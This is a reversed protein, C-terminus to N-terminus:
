LITMIIHRVTMKRFVSTEQPPYGNGKRARGQMPLPTIDQSDITIRGRDSPVLGVIMYFCTTKGAGNPGLLGVIEGSRIELSVDLVVKKQKYSKALNSARLVAMLLRNTQPSAPTVRSSSWKSGAPVAPKQVAARPPLWGASRITIFLM